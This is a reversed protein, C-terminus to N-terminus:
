GRYQVCKPVRRNSRILGFDEYDKVGLAPFKPYNKPDQNFRGGCDSCQSVEGRDNSKHPPDLSDWGLAPLLCAAGSEHVPSHSSRRDVQCELLPRFEAPFRSPSRRRAFAAQHALRPAQDIPGAGQSKRTLEESADACAHSQSRMPDSYNWTRDRGSGYRISHFRLKQLRHTPRSERFRGAPQSAETIEIILFCIM